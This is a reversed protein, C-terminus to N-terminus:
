VLLLNMGTFLIIRRYETVRIRYSRRSWKSSLKVFKFFATINYNNNWQQRYSLWFKIVRIMVWFSCYFIRIFISLSEMRNRNNIIKISRTNIKQWINKLETIRNVWTTYIRSLWQSFFIDNRSARFGQWPSAIQLFCVNQLVVRRNQVRKAQWFSM